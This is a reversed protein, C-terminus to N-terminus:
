DIKYKRFWKDYSGPAIVVGVNIGIYRENLSAPIGSGRKGAVVGFNISSSSRQSIIPLGIGFTIGLDNLQTGNDSFPLTAYQFGTRYRIRSILNITNSRDLYDFHPSYQLGFSFRQTNQFNINSSENQFNAKYSNWETSKYDITFLLQPVKSKNYFENVKPKHIFTLGVGFTSPMNLSGKDDTVENLVSYTKPDNVNNAFYLDDERWSTLKQAPTYILGLIFKNNESNFSYNMGLDYHFSKIRYGVINVGGSTENAFNSIRINENAGFVYGFNAGVGLQHKKFEILKISLGTFAENTGGQGRYTYHISDTGIEVKEKIEYGTRSFPKLGFALGFYKAFPIALIFHDIGVIRDKHIGNPDTFESFKTSIGTTFLPQGTGLYSYSSPNYFNLATSDILAINSNGLGSFIAHDFGGMEGIGYSSIPSNSFKQAYTLSSFALLFTVFIKNFM